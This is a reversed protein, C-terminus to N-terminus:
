LSHVDLKNRHRCYFFLCQDLIKGTEAKWHM